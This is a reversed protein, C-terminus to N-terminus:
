SRLTGSFFRPKLVVSKNWGKLNRVILQMALTNPRFPLDSPSKRYFIGQSLRLDDGYLVKKAINCTAVYDRDANFHCKPCCFWGGSKSRKLNNSAKVHYGRAGCRPCFCSTYAPNVPRQLKIGQLKAKYEVKDFIAQRVTTNIWWNTDAPKDSSKLSKLGEVYISSAGYLKAVLVIINAALHALSKQIARYKRWQKAIKVNYRKWKESDKPLKDRQAKLHDVQKRIRSLKSKLPGFKLFIPRCIQNGRRDFVCITLLKRVGWDVTVFYESEQVRPIPVKIKYDLVPLWQGHICVLRLDNKASAHKLLHEPLDIELKIWEWRIEKSTDSLVKLQLQLKKREVDIHEIIAQNDDPAYTIM